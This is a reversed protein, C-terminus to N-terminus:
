LQVVTQTNSNKSFEILQMMYHNSVTLDNVNVVNEISQFSLNKDIFGFSYLRNNKVYIYSQEDETRGKDLIYYSNNLALLDDLAKFVKANYEGVSEDNLEITLRNITNEDFKEQNFFQCKLPNLKYAKMLAILEQTAEFVREYTKISKTQKTHKVIALRMYKQQDQYEILAFKPEYRKLARNYKPWHKKILKCEFLLAMLETGTELYDITSLENWLDQRRQGSNKGSFHQYVRKKINLAKGIYIIKDAKDKFFYVGTTSPLREFLQLDLHQPLRQTPSIKKTFDKILGENDKLFLLEFLKSTALADGYARHRNQIPINLDECLNGLSYSHFGPLLKRSLRVTCLKPASFQIQSLGLEHQIFSYDFNVNHAVFVCDILYTYIDDAIDNFLPAEAVMENTIGTLYQIKPPICQGPNILSQFQDIVKEGDHILIAIETIRNKAAFGGTTEIDVIAYKKEKKKM